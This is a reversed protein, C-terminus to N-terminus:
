SKEVSLLEVHYSGFYPIQTEGCNSFSIHWDFICRTYICLLFVMIKKKAFQLGVAFKGEGRFKPYNKNGVHINASFYKWLKGEMM